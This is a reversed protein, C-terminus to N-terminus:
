EQKLRDLVLGTVDNSEKAFLMSGGSVDFVFTYGKEEAIETIATEVRQLIPGLMKQREEQLRMQMRQEFTRLKEQEQQFEQEKKQQDIPSLTGEAIKRQFVGFDEELQAVRDEFSMVLSDRLDEMKREAEATEPLLELLNGLNVHAFKQDQAMLTTTFIFFISVFIFPIIRM